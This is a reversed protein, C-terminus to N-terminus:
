TELKSYIIDSLGPLTCISPNDFDQETFQIDYKEELITILYIMDIDRFPFNLFWLYGEENNIVINEPAGFREKLITFINKQIENTNLNM